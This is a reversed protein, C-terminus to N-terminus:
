YLEEIFLIYPLKAFEDIIAKHNRKDKFQKELIFSYSFVAESSFAQNFEVSQVVIGENRALEIFDRINDKGKFEIHYEIYRARDRVFYEFRPLFMLVLCITLTGLIALTYFGAGISIGTCATAWLGAATTLGKIRNRSSIIITGAGLFGIGSIVQAALRATDGGEFYNYLFENTMMAIAAGLSVLIYTRLGAAHRKAAREIGVVGGLIVALALRILISWITLKGLWEANILDILPDSMYNVLFVM